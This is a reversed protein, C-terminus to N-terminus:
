LLKAKRVSDMVSFFKESFSDFDEIEIYFPFPDVFRPTDGLSPNNDLKDDLDKLLLRLIAIDDSDTIIALGWEDYKRIYPLHENEQVFRSDIANNNYEWFGNMDSVSEHNERTAGIITWAMNSNCYLRYIM